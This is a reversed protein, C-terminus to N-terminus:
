FCWSLLSLFLVAGPVPWFRTLIWDVPNLFMALIKEYDMLFPCVLDFWLFWISGLRPADWLVASCYGEVPDLDHFDLFAKLILPSWVSFSTSGGWSPVKSLFCMTSLVLTSLCSSHSIRFPSPPTSSIILTHWQCPCFQCFSFWCATCYICAKFPSKHSASSPPTQHECPSSSDISIRLLIDKTILFVCQLTQPSLCRECGYICVPHPGPTWALVSAFM